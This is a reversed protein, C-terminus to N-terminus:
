QEEIAPIPVLPAVQKCQNLKGIVQCTNCFKVVDKRLGPWYFHQLVRQHTKNIGLHGALPSEHALHLVENRYPGPVVIQHVARWTENAPADPPKWHRMLVGSKKYYGVQKLAAQTEPVVHEQIYSLDAEKEQPEILGEKKITGPEANRIDQLQTNEDQDLEKCDQELEKCDVAGEQDHAMFSDALELKTEVQEETLTTRRVVNSQEQSVQAQKAMARTVACAPYVVPDAASYQMKEPNNLMQLVASM